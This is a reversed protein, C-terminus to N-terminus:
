AARRRTLRQRDSEAQEGTGGLAKQRAHQRPSSLRTRAPGARPACRWPCSASAGHGESRTSSQGRAPSWRGSSRRGTRWRRSRGCRGRPQSVHCRLHIREGAVGGLARLAVVAAGPSPNRPPPAGAIAPGASTLAITACRSNREVSRRPASGPTLRAASAPLSDEAGAGDGENLPPTGRVPRHERTRGSHRRAVFRGARTPRGEM